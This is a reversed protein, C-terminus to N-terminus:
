RATACAGIPLRTKTALSDNRDVAAVIREDTLVHVGIRCASCQGNRHDGCRSGAQVDSTLQDSNAEALTIEV